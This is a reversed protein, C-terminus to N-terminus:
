RTCKYFNGKEIIEDGVMVSKARYDIKVNMGTDTNERSTNSNHIFACERGVIVTEEGGRSMSPNIGRKTLKDVLVEIQEDLYQEDELNGSFNAFLESGM